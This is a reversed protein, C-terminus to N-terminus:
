RVGVAHRAASELGPRQLPQGGGWAIARARHISRCGPGGRPDRGTNRPRELLHDDGQDHGISGLPGMWHRRAARMSWTPVGRRVVHAVLLGPLILALLLLQLGM